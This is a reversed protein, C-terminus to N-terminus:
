AARTPLYQLGPSLRYNLHSLGPKCHRGYRTLKLSPNPLVAQAEVPAQSLVLSGRSPPWRMLCRSRYVSSTTGRRWQWWQACARRVTPPPGVFQSGGAGLHSRRQGRLAVSKPSNGLRHSVPDMRKGAARPAAAKHSSSSVAFGCKKSSCQM